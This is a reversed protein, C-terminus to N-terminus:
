QVAFEDICFDLNGDPDSANSYLQLGVEQVQATDTVGAIYNPAQTLDFRVQSWGGGALPHTIPGNSYIYGNSKIYIQASALDFGASFYAWATVTKGVWNQPSGFSDKFVVQKFQGAHTILASGCLSQSGKCLTTTSVAPNFTVYNACCTDQVFGDAGSEFTAFAAGSDAGGCGPTPSASPSPTPSATATGIAVTPSASFTPTITPTPGGLVDLSDIRYSVAGDPDSASSFVDVGVERVDASDSASLSSLDYTLTVWGGGTPATVLGGAHGVYGSNVKVYLSASSGVYGNPFYFRVTLSRSTWDLAPSLVKKFALHLTGSHALTAAGQLSQSGFCSPPGASLTMTTYGATAEAIWSETGAEFTAFNATDPGGSCGPVPTPTDTYTPFIHVPLQRPNVMPDNPNDRTPRDHLLPLFGAAASSALAILLALIRM